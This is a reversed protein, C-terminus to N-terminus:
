RLEIAYKGATSLNMQQAIESTTDIVVVVGRWRNTMDTTKCVPCENTGVVRRCNRCVKEKTM